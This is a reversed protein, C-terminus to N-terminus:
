DIYIGDSEEKQKKIFIGYEKELIEKKRKEFIYAYGFMDPEVKGELEKKVRQEVKDIIEKSKM